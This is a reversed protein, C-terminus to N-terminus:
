LDPASGGTNSITTEIELFNDGCNLTYDKQVTVPINNDIASPPVSFSTSFQKIAVRPDIPDFLDEPGTTRLVAPGGATGDNVVTIATPNDTSSINILPTLAKFSDNGAPYPPTFTM